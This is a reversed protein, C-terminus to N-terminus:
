WVLTTNRNPFITFPKTKSSETETRGSGRYVLVYNGPLLTHTETLGKNLERKIMKTEGKESLHLIAYLFSGGGSFSVTLTGPDPIPLIHNSGPTLLTDKSIGPSSLVNIRYADALVSASQNLNIRSLPQTFGPQRIITPIATSPNGTVSPTLSALPVDLALINHRGPIIEIAEKKLSPVTHLELDYVGTPDLFLTDPIGRIDLTHIFQYIIKGTYHNYLTFPINSVTPKKAADLLNIQVSTTNLTQRIIMGVTQTLSAETRTDFFTGVCQYNKILSESSAMGVVFPKLAIRNETLARSVKCPDGQCSEEGDTILIMANLSQSDKPFDGAGMELSYAIPTQGQPVIQQLVDRIKEANNKGFPVELKSDTCNNASRPFQHGFIRLGFEVKSNVRSISDTLKFLMERASEFRNKDGWSEKMSGSADLLFLIRTTKPKFAPAQQSFTSSVSLLLGALLIWQNM